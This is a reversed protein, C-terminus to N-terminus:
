FSWKMCKEGSQELCLGALMRELESPSCPIAVAGEHDFGYEEAARELLRLFRPETLISLPVVVKKAVCGDVAIVAFHGEKVDSSTCEEYVKDCQSSPKKPFLLSKLLKEAVLRLKVNIGNDKIKNKSSPKLKCGM